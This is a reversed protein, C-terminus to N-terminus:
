LNNIKFKWKGDNKALIGSCFAPNKPIYVLFDFTLFKNKFGSTKVFDELFVNNGENLRKAIEDSEIYIKQNDDFIMDWRMLDDLSIDDVKKANKVFFPFVTERRLAKLCAVGGLAKGFDRAISRIYTGKSCEIYFSIEDGEIGLIDFKFVEVEREKIEFDINKRALDYARKGNIKVASFKPPTQSIKGIFKKSVKIIDEKTFEKEEKTIINGTIDCTDTETNLLIVGSYAKNGELIYNSLKTANNCTCVLLGTAFPDLTGTHGIKKINLKKRLNSIAKFSSIGEEKDLLFFGSKM